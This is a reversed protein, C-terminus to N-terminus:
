SFVRRAALSGAALDREALAAYLRKLEADISAFAPPGLPQGRDDVVVADMSRALALARAYWAAFPESAADTQPVDFSLTLERLATQSPDDSLAVQSDFSLVLMPPAGPTAGLVVLRGPLAGPVFDQLGAQQQIYGLSWAAGRARLLVALQADHQSAFADLERSRAVVELMDPFDVSAGLADAFTQIKQIFESYEIENLAGTRNALQVGAQLETYRAGPAPAEWDGTDASLGEIALPKSGARRTAPLHALVWEGTVPAELQVTVLADILADLRAPARRPGPLTPLVETDAVQAAMAGGAALAQADLLADTGPSSGAGVPSALDAGLGMAAEGGLGPEHGDTRGPPGPDARKPGAKRVQWSNYAVVGLIGIGGVAALALTLDDM